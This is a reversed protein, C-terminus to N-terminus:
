PGQFTEFIIQEDVPPASCFASPINSARKTLQSCFDQQLWSVFYILLNFLFNMVNTEKYQSDEKNV